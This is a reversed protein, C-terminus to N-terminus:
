IELIWEAAWVDDQKWGKQFINSGELQLTFVLQIDNMVMIIYWLLKWTSTERDKVEDAAYFM